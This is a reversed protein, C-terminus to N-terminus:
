RVLAVDGIADGIRLVLVLMLLSLRSQGVAIERAIGVMALGSQTGESLPHLIAELSGFTRGIAEMSVLVMLLLVSRGFVRGGVRL